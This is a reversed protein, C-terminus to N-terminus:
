NASSLFRNAPRGTSAALRITEASVVGHLRCTKHHAKCDQRLQHTPPRAFARVTEVSSTTGLTSYATRTAYGAPRPASTVPRADADVLRVIPITESATLRATPRTASAVPKTTEPTKGHLHCTKHRGKYDQRLLRTSPRIIARTTEASGAPKAVPIATSAAPKAVTKATSAFSRSPLSAGMQRDPQSAKTLFPTAILHLSQIAAERLVRKFINKNVKDCTFIVYPVNSM